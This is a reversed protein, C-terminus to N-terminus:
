DNDIASSLEKRPIVVVECIDDDKLLHIIWARTDMALVQDQQVDEETRYYRPADLKRSFLMPQLQPRWMRRVVRYIKDIQKLINLAESTRKQTM